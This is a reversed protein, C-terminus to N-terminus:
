KVRVRRVMPVDYVLNFFANAIHAFARTWATIKHNIEKLLPLTNEVSPPKERDSDLQEKTQNTYTYMYCAPYSSTTKIRHFMGTKVPISKEKSLTITNASEEENYTVEGELVTLSVNAFDTSIYNELHMGPFDAVFLVDTYNSWTYVHQQIEELKYRYSNYRTLLPMLFSIPKLPHWDVTLMDVNPDFIRQQFRNNLSCWVDMYISVNTSLRMWKEKDEFRYHSNLTKERRRMLNDKLCQSYQIAMDGHRVWRDGQVWAEPDLYRIENNENDHVKIVVLITDWAHIMMDWSYGYLGPM